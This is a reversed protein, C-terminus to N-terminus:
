KKSVKVEIKELHPTLATLSFVYRGATDARFLFKEEYNSRGKAYIFGGKSEGFIFNKDIKILIKNDPSILAARIFVDPAGWGSEVFPAISLIYTNDPRDINFRVAYSEGAGGKLVEKYIIGRNLFGPLIFFVLLIIITGLFLVTKLFKYM